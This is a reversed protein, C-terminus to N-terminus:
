KKLGAKTMIEFLDMYPKDNKCYTWYGRSNLIDSVMGKNKDSMLMDFFQNATKSFDVPLNQTMWNNKIYLYQAAIELARRLEYNSETLTRITNRSITLDPLLGVQQKQKNGNLGDYDNNRLYNYNTVANLVGSTQTAVFPLVNGASAMKSREIVIDIEMVDKVPGSGVGYLPEKNQDLLPTTSTRVYLSANFKLKSGVGKTKWDQKSFTTDKPIVDFMGVSIVKDFHGTVVVVLGYRMCMTKIARIFMTKKNADLMAATNADSIDKMKPGNFMEDEAESQLETLSDIFVYTPKWIVLPKGTKEDLFPSEVMYEKKNALKKECLDHLLKYFSDLSYYAGSLWLVRNEIDARYLDEGMFLARKKDKDLSNETDNIVVDTDYCINAARMIMACAFTSKFAGNPGVFANIHQALGGSLYWKGDVGPVYTGTALDFLSNTNFSITPVQETVVVDSLLSM